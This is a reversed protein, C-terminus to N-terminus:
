RAQFLAIVAVAVAAIAAIASVVSLWFTARALRETAEAARVFDRRQLEELYYSVGVYTNMAAADHEAVLVDDSTERLQKVSYSMRALM